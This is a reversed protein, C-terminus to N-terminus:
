HKRTRSGKRGKRGVKRSKHARRSHKRSVAM